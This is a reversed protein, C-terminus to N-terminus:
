RAASASPRHSTMWIRPRVRWVTHKKRWNSQPRSLREEFDLRDDSFDTDRGQRPMGVEAVELARTEGFSKSLDKAGIM